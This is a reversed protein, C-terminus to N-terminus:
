KIAYQQIDLLLDHCQIKQEREKIFFDLTLSDEKRSAFGNEKFFSAPILFPKTRSLLFYLGDKGSLMEDLFTDRMTVQWGLPKLSGGRYFVTKGGACSVVKTNAELREITFGYKVLIKKIEETSLQESLKVESPLDSILHFKYLLFFLENKFKEITAKQYVNTALDAIATNVTDFRSHESFCTISEAELAKRLTEDNFHSTEITRGDWIVIVKDFEFNDVPSRKIHERIRNKVDSSQGIYIQSNASDVLLYLGGFAAGHLEAEIKKIAEEKSVQMLVLRDTSGRKIGNIEPFERYEYAEM